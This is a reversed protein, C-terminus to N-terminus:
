ISELMKLNCRNVVEYFYILEADNLDKELADMKNSYTELKSVFSMYDVLMSIDNGSDTYKNMFAIYEDIFAEYADIAEKIEPRISSTQEKEPEPEPTPETTPQPAPEPEPKPTPEPEPEPTVEDEALYSFAASSTINGTVRDYLQTLYVVPMEYVDSYGDYVGTILIQHDALKDYVEKPTVEDVDLGLLWEHGDTDKFVALLLKVGDSDLTNVETFSGEIWIKTGGLGNESAHSNYKNFEAQEFKKYFGSPVTKLTEKEPETSSSHSCGAFSLVLLIALILKMIKKM